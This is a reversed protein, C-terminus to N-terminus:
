EKEEKEDKEKSVALGQGAQVSEKIQEGKKVEATGEKITKKRSHPREPMRARRGYLSLDASRCGCRRILCFQLSKQCSFYLLHRFTNGYYFLFVSGHNEMVRVAFYSISHSISDDIVLLSLNKHYCIIFAQDFQLMMHDALYATHRPVIGDRMFVPFLDDILDTGTWFRLVSAADVFFSFDDPAPDPKGHPLTRIKVM